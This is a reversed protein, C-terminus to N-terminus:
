SIPWTRGASELVSLGSSWLDGRTHVNAGARLLVGNVRQGSGDRGRVFLGILIVIAMLAQIESGPKGPGLAIPVLALGAAM